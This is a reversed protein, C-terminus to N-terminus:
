HRRNKRKRPARVGPRNSAKLALMERLPATLVRVARGVRVIPINGKAAARYIGNRSLRLVTGVHPWLPVVAESNIEDLIAKLDM